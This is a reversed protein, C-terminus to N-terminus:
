VINEFRTPKHEHEPTPEESIDWTDSDDDDEKLDENGPTFDTITAITKTKLKEDWNNARQVLITQKNLDLTYLYEIDGHICSTPEYAGCQWGSFDDKPNPETLSKKKQHKGNGLYEMENEKAGILILWGSAQNVNDRIHEDKVWQMFQKLTPLAGRPYGDSHRYFILQDGYEDKIIINCRTSM